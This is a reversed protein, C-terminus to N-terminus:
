GLFGVTVLDFGTEDLRSLGSMGDVFFIGGMMKYNAQFVWFGSPFSCYLLCEDRNAVSSPSCDEYCLLFKRSRSRRASLIYICWEYVVWFLDERM